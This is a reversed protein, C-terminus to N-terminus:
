GAMRVDQRAGQAGHPEGEIQRALSWVREAAPEDAVALLAFGRERLALMSGDRDCMQAKLLLCVFELKQARTMRGLPELMAALPHRATSRGRRQKRRELSLM